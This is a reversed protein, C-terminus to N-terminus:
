SLDYVPTRIEDRIISVAMEIITENECIKDTTQDAVLRERVIRLASERFSVIGSKGSLNTIIM